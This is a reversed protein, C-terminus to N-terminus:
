IRLYGKNRLWDVQNKRYRWFIDGQTDFQFDRPSVLVIDGEVWARRKIKGRIGCLRNHGDQCNVTFREADLVKTAVGM